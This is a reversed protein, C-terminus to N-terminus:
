VPPCIAYCTRLIDSVNSSNATTFFSVCDVRCVHQCKIKICIDVICSMIFYVVHKKLVYENLTDMNQHFQTKSADLSTVVQCVGGVVYAYIGGGTLMCIVAVIRETHTIPVVDGYGITTLTMISFYLAVVYQHFIPSKHMPVDRYQVETMWNYPEGDEAMNGEIDVVMRFVCAIWHAMLLVAIFFNLLSLLGYTITMKSEWRRFITAGKIIRFLKLLRFLRLVRALKLNTLANSEALVGLVEFPLISILDLVFRCSKVLM